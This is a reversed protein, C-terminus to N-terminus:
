LRWHYTPSSKPPQSHHLGEQMRAKDKEEMVNERPERPGGLLVQVLVPVLVLMLVPLLVLVLMLVPLPVLVQVPVPVSVVPM